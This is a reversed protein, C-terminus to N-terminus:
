PWVQPNVVEPPTLHQPSLLEPWSPLPAVSSLLTGTSTEPRVLPTTATDLPHNCLQAIMADPPTFHQPYLPSPSSPSSVVVFRVVGTFTEPRVLPM